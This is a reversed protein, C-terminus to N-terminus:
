EVEIVERGAIEGDGYTATLRYTGPPLYLPLNEGPRLLIRDFAVDPPEQELAWAQVLVSVKDSRLSAPVMVPQGLVRRYFGAPKPYGDTPIPLRIQADVAGTYQGTVLPVGEKSLYIHGAWGSNSNSEYVCSNLDITFPDIGTMQKFRAAMWRDVGEFGPIPTEAIHSWGAFVIIRADGPMSKIQQKLNEAQAQERIKVRLAFSADAPISIASEYAFINFGLKTANRILAAFVPEVSYHGSAPTYNHNNSEGTSPKLTEFGIHTFGIKRLKPLLELVFARAAVNLHNENFMILKRSQAQRLIWADGDHRISDGVPCTSSGHPINFKDNIDQRGFFTNFKARAQDHPAQELLQVFAGKAM